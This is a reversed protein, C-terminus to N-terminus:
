PGHSAHRQEFHDLADHMERDQPSVSSLGQLIEICEQTYLYGDTNRIRRRFGRRELFRHLALLGAICGLMAFVVSRFFLM